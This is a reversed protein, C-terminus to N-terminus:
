FARDYVTASYGSRSYQIGCGIKQLLHEANWDTDNLGLTVRGNMLLDYVRSATGYEGAKVLDKHLKKFALRKSTRM